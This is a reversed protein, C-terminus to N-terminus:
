TKGIGPAGTIRARAGSPLVNRWLWDIPKPVIDVGRRAKLPSASASDAKSNKANKRDTLHYTSM